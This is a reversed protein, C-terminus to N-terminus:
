NLPGLEKELKVKIDEYYPKQHYSITILKYGLKKCLARKRKDNAKVKQLQEEGGRSQIPKYHHEGNYEIGLRKEPIWFDIELGELERGRYHLIVELPAVLKRICNFLYYEYFPRPSQPFGMVKRVYNEIKKSQEKEEPTPYQYEPYTPYNWKLARLMYYPLYLRIFGNAYYTMYEYKPVHVAPITCLACLKPKHRLNDVHVIDEERRVRLQQKINDLSFYGNFCSCTWLQGCLKCRFILPFYIRNNLGTEELSEVPCTCESM